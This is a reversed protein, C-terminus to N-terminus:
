AQEGSAIGVLAGITVIVAESGAHRSTTARGRRGASAARCQRRTTAGAVARAFPGHDPPSVRVRTPIRVSRKFHRAYPGRIRRPKTEFMTLTRAHGGTAYAAHATVGVLVYRPFPIFGAARPSISASSKANRNNKTSHRRAYVAQNQHRLELNSRNKTSDDDRHFSVNLSRPSNDCGQHLRPAPKCAPQM